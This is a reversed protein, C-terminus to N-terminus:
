GWHHIRNLCFVQSFNPLLLHSQALFQLFTSQFHHLSQHTEQVPLIALFQPFTSQFNHLSQHTEQVPLIALENKIRKRGNTDFEMQEPNIRFEPNQPQSEM